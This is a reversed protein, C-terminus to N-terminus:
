GRLVKAMRAVRDSSYLDELYVPEGDPGSLPVRWNPYEDETGPLNQTRPDGVADTLTANIVKSPTRTLLTHMALTVQEPDDEDAEM